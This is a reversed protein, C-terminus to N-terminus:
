VVKPLMKNFLLSRQRYVASSCQNLATETFKEMTTLTLDMFWPLVTLSAEQGAVPFMLSDTLVASHRGNLFITYKHRRDM